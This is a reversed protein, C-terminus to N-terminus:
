AAAKIIRVMKIAVDQNRALCRAKYVTAFGGKGLAQVIEYDQFHIKTNDSIYVIAFKFNRRM